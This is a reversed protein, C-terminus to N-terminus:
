LTNLTFEPSNRNPWFVYHIQAHDGERQVVAIYKRYRAILEKSLPFRNDTCNGNEIFDILSLLLAPKYRKEWGSSRDRKLNYLKGLLDDLLM